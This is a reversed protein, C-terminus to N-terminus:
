MGDKNAAFELNFSDLKAGLTRPPSLEYENIVKTTIDGHSQTSSKQSSGCEAIITLLSLLLANIVKSNM